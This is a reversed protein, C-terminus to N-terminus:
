AGSFISTSSVSKPLTVVTSSITSITRSALISSKSFKNRCFSCFDDLKFNSKAMFFYKLFITDFLIM